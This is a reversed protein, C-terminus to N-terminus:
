CAPNETEGNAGTWVTWGYFETGRGSNSKKVTVHAQRYYIPHYFPTCNQLTKQPLQTKQRNLKKSKEPGFKPDQKRQM